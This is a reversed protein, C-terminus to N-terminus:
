AKRRRSAVGLGGIAALLMLGAAPLPIPAILSLRIGMDDHNDDNNAGDDDFFLYLVQGSRADGMGDLAFTAFFNIGLPGLGDGADDPNSGNEVTVIPKGGDKTKFSFDVTTFSSFAADVITEPFPDNVVGGSVFGGTTFLDAGGFEFTNINGAEYGLYEVKIKGIGPGTLTVTSGFFGKAKGDDDIITGDLLENVPATDPITGHSGGVLTFTAASASGGIALALAAAAFTKMSFAM